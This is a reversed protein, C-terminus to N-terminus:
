AAAPIRRTEQPDLDRQVAYRLALLAVNVSHDFRNHRRRHPASGNGHMLYDIARLFGIRRLRQVPRSAILERLFEDDVPPDQTWFLRWAPVREMHPHLIRAPHKRAKLDLIGQQWNALM